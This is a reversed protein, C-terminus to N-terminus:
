GAGGRRPGIEKENGNVVQIIPDAAEATMRTDLRGVEVAQRRLADEEVAGM